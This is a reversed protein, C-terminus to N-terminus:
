ESSRATDRLIPNSSEDQNETKKRSRILLVLILIVVIIIIPLAIFLFLMTGSDMDEDENNDDKKDDDGGHDDEDPPELSSNYTIIDYIYILPIEGEINASVAVSYNGKEELTINSINSSYYKIVNDSNSINTNNNKISQLFCTNNLYQSYTNNKEIVFIDYQKANPLAEWEIVKENQSINLKKDMIESIDDDTIEKESISIIAGNLFSLNDKSSKRSSISLQLDLEKKLSIKDHQYIPEIKLNDITQIEDANNTIHIKDLSNGCSQYIISINKDEDYKPLSYKENEKLIAKSTNFDINDYDKIDNYTLIVDKQIMEPDDISFMIYYVNNDDNKYNEDRLYPNSIIMNIKHSRDITVYDFESEILKSAYDVNGRFLSYSYGHYIRTIVVNVSEYKKNQPLKVIIQSDYDVHASETDVIVFPDKNTLTITIITDVESLVTFSSPVEDINKYNVHYYKNTSNIKTIKEGDSIKIETGTPTYIEFKIDEQLPNLKPYITFNKGAFLYNYVKSYLNIERSDVDDMLHAQYFGPLECKFEIIDLSTDLPLFNDKVLYKSDENILISKDDSNIKGKYYTNIKGYLTEQYLYGKKVLLGYDGIYYFPKSCDTLKDSFTRIKRYENHIYYILGKNSEIRFNIDSDSFGYLKIYITNTYDYGENDKSLAYIMRTNEYIHSDANLMSNNYVVQINESTYFIYSLKISEESIKPLNIKYVQPIYNELRINKNLIYNNNKYDELNIKEPKNSLYVTFEDPYIYENTDHEEIQLSLHILLFAKKNEEKAKNRKFYLQYINTTGSLRSFVSENEDEKAPMNAIFKNDNNSEFNLVKGFCHSLIKRNFIQEGFKFTVINEDNYDYDDIDVYLNFVKNGTFSFTLPNGSKLEKVRRDDKHLIISSQVDMYPDEGSEIEVIYDGETDLDENIKIEGRNKEGIYLLEKDSESYISIYQSFEINNINLELTVIENKTHSFSLYFVNKSYFKDLTLIGESQLPIIDQENFISIYDKNYSNFIDKIVIYYKTKKISLESSKLLFFNETLTFEKFSNIYEGKENTEIKDYSDYIYCYTTFGKGVKLNIIIDSDEYDNQFSFYVESKTKTVEFQTVERSNLPTFDSEPISFNINPQTKQDINFVFLILTLFILISKSM